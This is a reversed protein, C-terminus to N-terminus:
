LVINRVPFNNGVMDYVGESTYFKVAFGRGDRRTDSSGLSGAIQSFRVFVPTETGPELFAAKCFKNANTTAKFVGHAGSGRAHVVREPIREHDFQTLHERFVFDELLIPGDSRHKSTGGARLTADITSLVVGQNTTLSDKDTTSSM